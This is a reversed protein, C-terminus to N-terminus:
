QIKNQRNVPTVELHLPFASGSLTLSVDPLAFATTATSVGVAVVAALLVGFIKLRKM